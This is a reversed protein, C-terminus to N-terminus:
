NPSTQPKSNSCIVATNVSSGVSGGSLSARRGQLRFPRASGPAPRAERWFSKWPARLDASQPQPEPSPDHGSQSRLLPRRCRCPCSPCGRLVRGAVHRLRGQNAQAPRMVLSDMSRARLAVGARTQVPKGPGSQAEASGARESPWARSLHSAVSSAALAFPAGSACAVAVPPWRAVRQSQRARALWAWPLALLRFRGASPCRFRAHACHHGGPSLPRRWPWHCGLPPRCRAVPKGCAACLM